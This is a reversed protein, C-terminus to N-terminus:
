AKVVKLNFIIEKKILFIRYIGAKSQSFDLSTKDADTKFNINRIQGLSNIIWVKEVGGIDIFLNDSVPNPYALIDPKQHLFQISNTSAMVSLSTNHSIKCRSATLRVTYTGSRTYSHTPNTSTSTNGDGFDWVYATANTSQNNFRISNNAASTFTFQAKPDYTGIRWHQLSDFVVSKVAAKINNAEAATLGHNYTILTPNKRFFCTYFCVAAAYSGAVSPHSEDANYLEIAPYNQRIYRWVAGVPSVVGRNSDAAMMYRLRLLSDMGSYTCVPPFAGCNEVDGNKRGWTMYFMTEACPNSLKILSDLTKANPFFRTEVEQQTLAPRQSQEQLVVFDWNGSAIKSLTTADRTHLVLTHSSPSHNDFVLTDGRSNAINSIILPLDNRGVYSNGLFLVRKQTNQALISLPPLLAVFVLLRANKM